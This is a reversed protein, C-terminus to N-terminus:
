ETESLEEYMLQDLNYHPLKPLWDLLSMLGGLKHSTPETFSNFVNYMSWKLHEIVQQHNVVTNTTFLEQTCVISNTGGKSNIYEWWPKQPKTLCNSTMLTGWTSLVHDNIGQVYFSDKTMPEVHVNCTTYANVNTM